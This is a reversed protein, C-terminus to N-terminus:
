GKLNPLHPSLTGWVEVTVVGGTNDVLLINNFQLWESPSVFSDESELLLLVANWVGSLFIM